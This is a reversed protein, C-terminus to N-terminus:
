KPAKWKATTPDLVWSDYPKKEVFADIGAEYKYGPGAYNKKSGGDLFTEVWTGPQKAIFEPEAVIVRLVIGDQDIEAFYRAMNEGVSISVLV